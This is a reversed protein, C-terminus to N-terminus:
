AESTKKLARCRRNLTTQSKASRLRAHRKLRVSLRTVSLYRREGREFALGDELAQKLDAFAADSMYNTKNTKVKRPRPAKM